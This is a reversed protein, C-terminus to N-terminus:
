VAIRKELSSGPQNFTLNESGKRRDPDRFSLKLPLMHNFIFILRM